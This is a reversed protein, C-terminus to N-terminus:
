ESLGQRPAFVTSTSGGRPTLRSDPCSRTPDATCCSRSRSCIASAMRGNVPIFGLCYSVKPRRCFSGASVRPLALPQIPPNRQHLRLFALGAPLRQDIDLQPEESQSLAEPLQRASCLPRNGSSRCHRPGISGYPRPRVREANLRPPM